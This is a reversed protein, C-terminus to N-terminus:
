SSKSKRADEQLAFNKKKLAGVEKKLETVEEARQELAKAHKKQQETLTRQTETLSGNEVLLSAIRASAAKAKALSSLWLIVAVVAAALAILAFQM